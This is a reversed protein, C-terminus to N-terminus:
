RLCLFSLIRLLLSICLLAFHELVGPQCLSEHSSLSRVCDHLSRCSPPPDGSFGSRKRTASGILAPSRNQPTFSTFTVYLHLLTCAERFQGAVPRFRFTRHQPFSLPVYWIMRNAFEITHESAEDHCRYEKVDTCEIARSAIRYVTWFLAMWMGIVRIFRRVARFGTVM